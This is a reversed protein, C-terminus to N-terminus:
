RIWAINKETEVEPHSMWDYRRLNPTQPINKPTWIHRVEAPSNRPCFIRGGLVLAGLIVAHNHSKTGIQHDVFEDRIEAYFDRLWKTYM